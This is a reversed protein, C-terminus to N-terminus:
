RRVEWNFNKELTKIIKQFLNDIEKSSLTRDGAQFIIHFAFNKKGDPLEKGEYIDFIDIDQILEGGAINIKNLVDAVRVQPPVLIAIDRVASPFKSIAQYEREESCLKVLKNFDIEFAAVTEKIGLKFLIKSSLEGLFGVERQGSIKIEASKSSNWLFQESDNSTAQYNDYFKDAIGLGQLLSDVVGKLIYFDEQTGTLIGTLMRKEEIKEGKKKFVTGLEFIKLEKEKQLYRSNYDINNLLNILLNPRLYYFQESFPNELAVLGKGLYDGVKKNIFSYNYSEFFGAGKLIDKIRDQWVVEENRQTPLLALKPFVTDLKEYGHIRGIEETLDENRIIDPRWTPIKVQEGKVEFGLAEFIKIVENKSIKIGLLSEAEELNFKVKKALTKKPYIDIRGKVIEGGAIKQILEALKDIALVTANPDMGHEFRFSADTKLGLKRSTKRILIPNFNAAELFINKTENNIATNKGGKVGAIALPEKSDAIVLIDKDLKYRKNDLADIHEGDKGRRIIIEKIGDFDQFKSKTKVRKIKDFDFAHLPQGTELMMYNAADVINNILDLGCSKLREQIYKPSPKVKVGIVARGSYRPCDRSNRIKVQVFQKINTRANEKIKSEQNKMRLRTSAGCERAMGLHSFCDAARNATVDIDFIWDNGLRRVEEVEFSHLTLIKALENPSPLRDKFFSQLWSYSFIM